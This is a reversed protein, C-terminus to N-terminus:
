PKKAFQSPLWFPSPKSYWMRASAMARTMMILPEPAKEM